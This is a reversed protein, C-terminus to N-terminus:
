PASCCRIGVGTGLSPRPIDRRATCALAVSDDMNYWTGGRVLCNQGIDQNDYASCADDWEAVNGSMDYLGAIGGQCTEKSGVPGSGSMDAKCATGDFPGAYPYDQAGVASCARYWENKEADDPAGDDETYFITGGGIKGCLRRGAWTCYAAADCWDVCAVPHDDHGIEQEKALWEHCTPDEEFPTDSAEIAALTAPGALGPEFRDNWVCEDRQGSTRPATALWAMYQANTVEYADISYAGGPAASQVEPVNPCQGCGPTGCAGSCGDGAGASSSGELDAVLDDIGLVTSCGSAAVALLAALSAATTSAQAARPRSARSM